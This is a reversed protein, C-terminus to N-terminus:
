KAAGAAPVTFDTKNEQKQRELYRLVQESGFRKSEINKRADEQNQV